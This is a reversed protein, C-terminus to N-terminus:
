PAGTADSLSTAIRIEDVQMKYRSGARSSESKFGNLGDPGINFTGTATSTWSAPDTKIDPDLYLTAKEADGDGSMEFKILLFHPKHNGKKLVTQGLFSFVFGSGTNLRFLDQDLGELSLSASKHYRRAQTHFSMWYTRGDDMIPNEFSRKIVGSQSNMGSALFSASLGTSSYMDNHRIPKTLRYQSRLGKNVKWPSAWGKGGDLGHLPQRKNSDYDFGEYVLLGEGTEPPPVPEPAPTPTPEPVPTPTPEPVPTPAPEPAPEPTPTPEPAPTPVPEPAPEPVPEVEEGDTSLSFESYNNNYDYARVSYGSTSTQRPDFFTTGKRSYGIKVGNRYVEYAKVKFNDTSATWHLDIGHGEVITARLGTPQTPPTTDDSVFSETDAPASAASFNQRYDYAKVTYVGKSGPNRAFFNTGARTRGVRKGNHYVEYGIVKLNDTSCDWHLDYGYGPIHVSSLNRPTSPPTDDAPPKWVGIKSNNGIFHGTGANNVEFEYGGAKNGTATVGKPTKGSKRPWRGTNAKKIAITPRGKGNISAVINDKIIFNTVDALAWIGIKHSVRILNGQIVWKKKQGDFMGLGQVDSGLFPQKPNSFARLENFRFLTGSGYAQCLDNHNGTVKHSNMILNHEAVTSSGKIGFGDSAFNEVTNYGIYNGPSSFLIGIKGANYMHNGRIINRAGKEIKIGSQLRNRWHTSNWDSTDQSAYLYCDEITNYEAGKNIRIGRGPVESDPHGEPVLSYSVTIGRINWHSAHSFTMAKVLPTHGKQPLIYIDSANHGTFNLIGHYGRRLFIRDGPKLINKKSQLVKALTKWPSASSGDNQPNGHLPDVHYDTAMVPTILLSFTLLFITRVIKM